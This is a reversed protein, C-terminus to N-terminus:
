TKAKEENFATDKQLDKLYSCYQQFLKEKRFVQCVGSERLKTIRLTERQSIDQRIATMTKGLYKAPLSSSNLILHVSEPQGKRATKGFAQLEVRRKMPLFTMLVFLGRNLNVVESVKIDTGRGALNTAIIAEGQGFERELLGETSSLDSRTYLTVKITLKSQVEEAIMNATKIDQCIVLACRAEGGNSKSNTIKYLKECIKQLWPMEGRNVQIAPLERRKCKKHTPIELTTLQYLEKIFNLETDSNGLTGSVGYVSESRAYRQFFEVDSVFNSVVSIPSIKLSHKMELFQQLGDGWQTREQVVGTSEFDIPLVNGNKVLYHKNETLNLATMASDVYAPLQRLTFRELYELMDIKMSESDYWASFNLTAKVTELLGNQLEEFSHIVSAVGNKLILISVAKCHVNRKFIKSYLTASGAETLFYINFTFPVFRNIYDKVGLVFKIMSTENLYKLLSKERLYLFGLKKFLTRTQPISLFDESASLGCVELDVYEGLVDVILKPKGLYLSEKGTSSLPEYQALASWVVTLVHEIYHMGPTGYALYTFHASQDIMMMDVEDVIVAHFQRAGRTEKMYFEQRLIDGAFSQFTGYVIQNRYCTRNDALDTNPDKGIDTNHSVSVGLSKYFKSWDKADRAALVPSSTVIDVEKGSIALFVALMAIVTSKGEGTQIQLLKGKKVGSLILSICAVIQTVWPCYGMSLYVASCLVAVHKSLKKVFDVEKPVDRESLLKKYGLAKPLFSAEDLITLVERAVM